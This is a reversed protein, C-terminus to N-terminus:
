SGSKRVCTTTISVSYLSLGNALNKTSSVIARTGYKPSATTPERHDCPESEGIGTGRPEGLAQQGGGKARDAAYM